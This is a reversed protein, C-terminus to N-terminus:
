RSAVVCLRLRTSSRRPASGPAPLSAALVFVIEPEARPHILEGVALSTELPVVMRDTLLAYIPQYVGMSAQKARSTLGLKAGVLHEGTAIRRM